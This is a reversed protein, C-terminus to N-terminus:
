SDLGRTNPPGEPTPPKLPAVAGLESRGAFIACRSARQSVCSRAGEQVEPRGGPAKTSPQRGRSAGARGLAARRRRAVKLYAARGVSGVVDDHVDGGGFIAVWGVLANAAGSVPEFRESRSGDGLSLGGGEAVVGAHETRRRQQYSSM